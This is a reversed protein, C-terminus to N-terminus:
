VIGKGLRCLGMFPYAFSEGAVQQETSNPFFGLRYYLCLVKTDRLAAPRALGLGLWIGPVTRALCVARRTSGSKEILARQRGRDAEVVSIGSSM